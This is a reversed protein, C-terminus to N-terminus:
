LIVLFNCYFILFYNGFFLVSNSVKCFGRSTFKHYFVVGFDVWTRMEFTVNLTGIGEYGKLKIFNKVNTELFSVPVVSSEPCNFFTNNKYFSEETDGYYNDPPNKLKDIVNTDNLYFNEMCGTFNQGTVLGTDSFPVGGIYLIKDLDLQYFDGKIVAKVEVRDVTFSLQNLYRDIIVDHWLNDDLLSGATISTM